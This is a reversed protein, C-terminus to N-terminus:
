EQRYISWASRSLDPFQFTFNVSGADFAFTGFSAVASSNTRHVPEYGVGALRGAFYLLRVGSSRSTARLGDCSLSASDFSLLRLTAIIPADCLAISTRRM